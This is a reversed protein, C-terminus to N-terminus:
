GSATPPCSYQITVLATYASSSRKLSVRNREVFVFSVNVAARNISSCNSNAASRDAERVVLGLGPIVIGAATRNVGRSGNGDSLIAVVLRTVADVREGVIQAM